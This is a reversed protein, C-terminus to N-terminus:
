LNLLLKDADSQAKSLAKLLFTQCFKLSGVPAGLVRLRDTVEVPVPLGNVKTTSFVSITCALQQGM